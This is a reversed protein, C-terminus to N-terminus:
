YHHYNDRLPTTRIDAPTFITMDHHHHHHHCRIRIFPRIWQLFCLLYVFGCLLWFLFCPLGPFLPLSVGPTLLRVEFFQIIEAKSINFPIGRLKVWGEQFPVEAANFNGAMLGVLAPNTVMVNTLLPNLAAIGSLGPPLPGSQTLGSGAGVGQREIGGGKQPTGRM